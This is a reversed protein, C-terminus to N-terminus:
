GKLDLPIDMAFRVRATGHGRSTRWCALLGLAQESEEVLEPEAGSPRALGCPDGGMWPESSSPAGDYSDHYDDACWCTGFPRRLGFRTLWTETDNGSVKTRQLADFAFSTTGAERMLWEYEAESPLRLGYQTALTLAEMRGVQYAYIGKHRGASLREVDSHTLPDRAVLFASVHVRHSPSVRPRADALTDSIEPDWGLGEKVAWEDAETLGMDFAGGPVIAFAVGTPQHGLSEFSTDSHPLTWAPGLARAMAVLLERREEQSLSFYVEVDALADKNM